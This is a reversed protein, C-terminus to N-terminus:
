FYAAIGFTHVFGYDPIPQFTYDVSFDTFGVPVNAGIGFSVSKYPTLFTYGVRGYFMHLFGYEAGIGLALEDHFPIDMQMGIRVTHKYTNLLAYGAGIHAITPLPYGEQVFTVKSGFNTLSAHVTTNRYPDDTQLYILRTIKKEWELEELRIEYATQQEDLRNKYLKELEDIETNYTNKKDALEIKLSELESKDKDDGEKAKLKKEQEAIKTSLYREQFAFEDEIREYEKQYQTQYDYRTNEYDQEIADVSADIIKEENTYRVSLLDTYIENEKAEYNSIAKQKKKEKNANLLDLEQKLKAKKLERKLGERIINFSEIDNETSKKLEEIAKNTRETNQAIIDNLEDIEGKKDEVRKDLRKIWPDSKAADLEKETESIQKNVAQLQEKTDDSESAELEQKRAELSNLKDQLKKIEPGTEKEIQQMYVTIEEQIEEIRQQRIEAFAANQKNLSDIRNIQYSQSKDIVEDISEDIMEETLEKEPENVISFLSTRESEVYHLDALKQNYLEEAAQL